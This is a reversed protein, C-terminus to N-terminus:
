QSRLNKKYHENSVTSFHSFRWCYRIYIITYGYLLGGKSYYQVM